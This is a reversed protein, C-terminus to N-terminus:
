ESLRVRYVAGAMYVTEGSPTVEPLVIDQDRSVWFNTYGSVTLGQMMAVHVQADIQGAKYATDAYAKVLMPQTRADRPTQNDMGGGYNQFVVYPLSANDPAQMNYISTTGALLSTLATAANLQDYMGKWLQLYVSM